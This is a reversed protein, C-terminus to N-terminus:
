RGHSVKNDRLSAVDRESQIAHGELGTGSLVRNVATLNMETTLAYFRVNATHLQAAIADFYQKSWESFRERQFSSDVDVLRNDVTSQLKLGKIEPIDVEAADQIMVAKILLFAQLATLIEVSRDNIDHFDSIVILRSGAQLQHSLSLLVDNLHPEEESSALPPCPQSVAHMIQSFASRGEFIPSQVFSEALRGVSVPIGSNQAQWAFYAAVKAAQSAKLQSRTGFRMTSRHDVLLFWNEQREEQYLKTYAQGTKAMLRWNIRRIEDGIEYPRSEEYEMGAGRYRSPQEGQRMASSQKPNNPLKAVISELAVALDLIQTDSLIPSTLVPDSELLKGEVSSFVQKTLSLLKLWHASVSKTSM